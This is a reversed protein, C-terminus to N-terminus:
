SSARLFRCYYYRCYFAEVSDRKKRYNNLRGEAVDLEGRVKPLQQKLFALSQSDQAAQRAINQQLYSNAIHNLTTAIKDRDHGTLSLELVGSEKGKETVSFRKLLANIAGLHTQQSIKFRTGEPARLERVRIAVGSGQALKGPIGRMSIGEGEVLFNGNKEVTLTLAPQTSPLQLWDLSLIPPQEGMLRSLGKGIVPFRVPVIEDRLRLEDVTKGLIMRSKLLQIEASSDPSIESTFQNISKLLNNQQKQEIQVMADAIYVPQAFLAYLLGCTACLLTFSLICIRHDILEGLLRALDLEQNEVGYGPQNVTKSSM